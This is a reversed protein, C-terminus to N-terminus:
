FAFCIVVLLRRSALLVIQFHLNHLIDSRKTMYKRLPSFRGFKLPSWVKSKSTEFREIRILSRAIQIVPSNSRM